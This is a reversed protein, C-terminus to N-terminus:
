RLMSTTESRLGGRVLLLIAERLLLLLQRGERRVVMMAIRQQYRRGDEERAADCHHHPAWMRQGERRRIKLSSVVIVVDRSWLRSLPAIVILMVVMLRVVVAQLRRREMRHRRLVAARQRCCEQRVCRLRLLRPILLRQRCRRRLNEEDVRSAVHLTLNLLQRRCCEVGVLLAALHAVEHISLLPPQALEQQVGVLVRVAEVGPGVGHEVNAFERGLDLRLVLVLSSHKTFPRRFIRTKKLSITGCRFRVVLYVVVVIVLPAVEAHVVLLVCGAMAGVLATIKGLQSTVCFFLLLLFFLVLLPPLFLVGSCCRRSLMRACLVTAIAMLLVAPEAVVVPLLIQHAAHSM